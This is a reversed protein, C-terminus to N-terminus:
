PKAPAAFKLLLSQLINQATLLMKILGGWPVIDEKSMVIACPTKYRSLDLKCEGSVSQM